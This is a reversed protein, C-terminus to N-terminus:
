NSSSGYKLLTWTLTHHVYNVPCPVYYTECVECRLLDIDVNCIEGGFCFCFHRSSPWGWLDKDPLPACTIEWMGGMTLGLCPSPNTTVDMNVEGKKAYQTSSMSWIVPWLFSFTQSMTVDVQRLARIINLSTVHAVGRQWFVEVQSGRTRNGGSAGSATLM